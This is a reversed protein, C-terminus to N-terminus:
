FRFYIFPNYGSAVLSAICFALAILVLAIDAYEAWPKGDFRHRLKAMLPTSAVCAVIILPLYSLTLM